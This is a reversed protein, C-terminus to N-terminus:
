VGGWYGGEGESLFGQFPSSILYECVLLQRHLSGSMGSAKEEDVQRRYCRAHRGSTGLAWRMSTSVRARNLPLDVYIVGM